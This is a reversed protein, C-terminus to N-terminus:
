TLHDLQYRYGARQVLRGVQCHPWSWLRALKLIAAGLRVRPRALFDRTPRALPPKGLVVPDLFLRGGVPELGHRRYLELSGSYQRNSELHTAFEPVVMFFPASVILHGGPRLCPSFFAVLAPPDPVHELVDLCVIADFGEPMLSQVDAHIEVQANNIELLARACRIAMAGIEYYHVRQGRQALYISDAGLGDGYVLVQRPGPLSALFDAIWTRIFLKNANRNWAVLDYLFADSQEYFSALAASWRHPVIGQQRLSDSVAAGINKESKYLRQKVADTDSGTIEVLLPVLRANDGLPPVLPDVRNTPSSMAM